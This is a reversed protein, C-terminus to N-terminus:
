VGHIVFFIFFTPIWILWWRDFVRDSFVTRWELVEIWCKSDFRGGRSPPSCVFLSVSVLHFSSCRLSCRASRHHHDASSFSIPEVLIATCSRSFAGPPLYFHTATTTSSSSRINWMSKEGYESVWRMASLHRVTFQFDTVTIWHIVQFGNRGSDFPDSRYCTSSPNSVISFRLVPVGWLLDVRARRVLDTCALSLHHIPENEIPDSRLRWRVSTSASVTRENSLM